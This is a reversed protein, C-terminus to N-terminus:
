AIKRKELRHKFLDELRIDAERVVARRFLIRVIVPEALILVPQRHRLAVLKERRQALVNHREQLLDLRLRLKVVRHQVAAEGFRRLVREGAIEHARHPQIEVM